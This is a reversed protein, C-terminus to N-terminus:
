RSEFISDLSQPHLCLGLTPFSFTLKQELYNTQVERPLQSLFLEGEESCSFCNVPHTCLTILNTHLLSNVLVFYPAVCLAAHHPSLLSSPLSTTALQQHMGSLSRQACWLVFFMIFTLTILPLFEAQASSVSLRSKHGQVTYYLDNSSQSLYKQSGKVAAKGHVNFTNEVKLIFVLKCIKALYSM